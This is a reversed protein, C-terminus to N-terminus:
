PTGAAPVALRRGECLMAINLLRREWDPMGPRYSSPTGTTTTRSTM